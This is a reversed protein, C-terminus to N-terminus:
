FISALFNEKEFPFSAFDDVKLGRISRIVEKVGLKEAINSNENALTNVDEESLLAFVIVPDCRSFFENSEIKRYARELISFDIDEDAEAYVHEFMFDCVNSFIKAMRSEKFSVRKMEASEVILAQIINRIRSRQSNGLKEFDNNKKLVYGMRTADNYDAITYAIKDAIKTVLYEQPLDYNFNKWDGSHHYIGELTEYSLNLGRGKREIFEAVIVSFANHRFKNGIKGSLFREGLHGFPVHGIDHGAAIARALSVNLGLFKALFSSIALVEATHTMRTRTYPTGSCYFVQTKNEMRRYAKSPFIKQNEDIAFPSGIGFYFLDSDDEVLYRRGATNEAVFRKGKLCGKYKEM